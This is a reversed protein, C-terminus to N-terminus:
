RRARAPSDDSAVAEAPASSRAHALWLKHLDATGPIKYHRHLEAEFSGREAAQLFAIFQATTGQALFFRTLSVSQAYYLPWDAGEPGDLAVLQEVRFLRGTQLPEVLDQARHLREAQPEALVALGEDAWRPLPKHPFLDALVVHTVEHPLVAGAVNPHDARLHVQRSVIRGGDQGM